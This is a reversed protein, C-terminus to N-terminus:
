ENGPQEPQEPRPGQRDGKLPFPKNIIETVKERAKALKEDAEAQTLRGNEVMKALKESVKSLFAEVIDAPNVGHENAVEAISRGGGQRLEQILEKPTLGMEEAATRLLVRGLMPRRGGGQGEGEGDPGNALAAQPLVLFLAMLVAFIATLMTLPKFNM